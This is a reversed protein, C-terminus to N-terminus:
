NGFREFLVAAFESVQEKKESVSVLFPWYFRYTFIDPRLNGEWTREM